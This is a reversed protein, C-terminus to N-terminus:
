TFAVTIVVRYWIRVSLTGTGTTYEAAGNNDLDVAKNEEPLFGGAVAPIPATLWHDATAEIMAKWQAQTAFEAIENSGSYVFALHDTDNTQVYDTANDLFMYAAVPIIALGAGPAPILEINTAALAKINTATLQVDKFGLSAGDAASADFQNLEAVVVTAGDLINLEAATANVNKLDTPDSEGKILKYTDGM